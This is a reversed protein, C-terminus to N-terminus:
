LSENKNQLLIKNKEKREKIIKGNKLEELLSNSLPQKQSYFLDLQEPNCDLDPLHIYDPQAILSLKGGHGVVLDPANNIFAVSSM